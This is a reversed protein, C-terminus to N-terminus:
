LHKDGFINIDTKDLSNYQNLLFFSYILKGLLIYIEGKRTTYNNNRLM